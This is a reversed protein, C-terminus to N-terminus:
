GNVHRCFGQYTFKHKARSIFSYGLARVRYSFQDQLLHAGHAIAAALLPASYSSMMLGLFLLVTTIEWAHLPVIVTNNLKFYEGTRIFSLNIRKSRISYLLFDCIHDLDILWGAILACPVCYFIDSVFWGICGILLATFFHEFLLKM